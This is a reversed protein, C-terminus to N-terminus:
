RLKKIIKECIKVYIIIPYIERRLLDKVCSLEAELLCHKGQHRISFSFFFFFVHKVMLTRRHLTMHVRAFTASCASLCAPSNLGYVVM